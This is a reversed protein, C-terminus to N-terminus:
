LLAILKLHMERLFIANCVCVGSGWAVAMKEIKDGGPSKPLLPFPSIAKKEPCSFPEDKQAVGYRWLLCVCMYGSDAESTRKSSRVVFFTISISKGRRRRGERPQKPGKKM